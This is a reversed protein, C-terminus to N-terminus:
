LRTTITFTYSIPQKLSFSFPVSERAPSTYDGNKPRLVPAVNTSYIPGRDNLVNNVVLNVQLERRNKFRYIYGGTATVIYYDKPAYVPTTADVNPDDIAVNPNTPSVITDAGRYGVIQKGRYRVGAGIRLNKLWGTQVTYDGFVNVIPQNQTLRRGEVINQRYAVIGNYATVANAVDPSRALTVGPAISAVNNANVFVGTDEAILKFLGMNNDIYAKVEPFVNSEYVKPFAVNGTFRFSRNPNYVVEIEFGDASRTRIDRYQPPLSGIGRKNRGLASLDDLVNADYLTNFFNPGDTTTGGNVEKNQYYTFNLNLRKQFLELRLGYDTGSAVTPELLRGDIRVIYGPPNFTEAYNITPTLWSTAHWVGGISRTIMSDRLAPPNYDDKFRVGAYAADRNGLADRPRIAADRVDLPQGTNPDIPRYTLTAYDAPAAPRMIRTVGDWDRPYDGKDLQQQTDFLYSDYRVAGLLILRDKFLKANISTLLYKFKSTNLAETDRRAINVAWMPRIEQDIPTAPNPDYFRITRGAIDPIPRYSENWYRRVRVLQLSTQELYGWQRHDDGMALSMYRYDIDETGVNVGGLTNFSFNGFRTPKVYAVALRINDYNYHRYGRFLHGDGYPQLFHTNPQGNPLVENIDLYTDNSQRNQEGNIYAATRNTDAAIEFYLDGLKQNFTFQLDKFQQSLVPADPSLTFEESPPRFYSNNIARDFRNEPLYISHLFTSSATGFSPLSGQVYDGIPTTTTQGGTMTQADGAYNFITDVGHPDYVYYAAARRTIGRASANAPTTAATALPKVTKFTTKGDWGSLRDDLTTFGSQRWNNGYEGEVRLEGGNWPRFTTTLFIAKRRDFDKLRWGGADSWLAAVRVAAKSSIPQNVDLTVRYNSWSGNSVQLTRFARNTVARKTTSSSVGGLTGNGFLISNPGRGFDYRELNYSDDIGYQPFFNRQPRSNSSGRINYNVPTVFFNGSGNDANATGSTTWQAAEQLDIIGLADIFERTIVSYAAPTDRLDLALRGGALSSTAAFGTDRQTTVEFPSLVLPEQNDIDTPQQSPVQAPLVATSLGALLASLWSSSKKMKGNPKRNPDSVQRVEGDRHANENDRKRRVVLAGTDADQAAELGSGALMRELADRPAFRGNVADTTAGRVNDVIYIIPTGASAAFQKLTVVADGKPLNFTREGVEAAVGISPGMNMVCGLAVIVPASSPLSLTRLLM